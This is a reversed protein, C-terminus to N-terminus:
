MGEHLEREPTTFDEDPLPPNLTAMFEAEGSVVEQFAAGFEEGARAALMDLGHGVKAMIKEDIGYKRIMWGCWMFYAIAFAKM